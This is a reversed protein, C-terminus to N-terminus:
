TTLPHISRSGAYRHRRTSSPLLTMHALQFRAPEQLSAPRRKSWSIVTTPEPARM